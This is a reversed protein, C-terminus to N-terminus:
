WGKGESIKMRRALRERACKRLNIVQQRTLGLLAAVEADGLPLRSWVEAFQVAPINVAEAIKRVSAVGTMVFLSAACSGDQDKLNLLLAARQNGNLECIEEWLRALWQKRGLTVDVPCAGDAFEQEASTESTAEATTEQVGWLRAMLPALDDFRMPADIERFLQALQDAPHAVRVIEEMAPHRNVDDIDDVVERTRRDPLRWDALGCVWDGSAADKWRALEPYKEFLYRLKNRLSHFAPYTRRFHDSCARAALTAVFAQLNEVPVARGGRLDEVHLLFAVVTDSAVDEIQAQHATGRRRMRSSVIQMVLPDVQDRVLDGLLRDAAIPDAEALCVEFAGDIGRAADAEASNPRSVIPRVTYMFLRLFNWGIMDHRGNRQNPITESHNVSTLICVFSKYRLCNLAGRSLRM